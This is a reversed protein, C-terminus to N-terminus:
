SEFLAELDGRNLAEEYLHRFVVDGHLGDHEFENTVWYHSRGIRSLSDLQLGSDVYMDDFYVASQLPVENRALRDPDYIRGYGTDQMLLEMAAAFPRLAKEERFM